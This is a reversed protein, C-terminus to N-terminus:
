AGVGTIIHFQVGCYHLQPLIREYPPVWFLAGQGNVPQYLGDEFIAHGIRGPALPGFSSYSSYIAQKGIDSKLVPREAFAEEGVSLDASHVDLLPVHLKWFGYAQEFLGPLVQSVASLILLSFRQIM